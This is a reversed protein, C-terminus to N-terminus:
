EDEDAELDLVPSRNATRRLELQYEGMKTAAEELLTYPYFIENFAARVDQEEVRKADRQESKRIAEEWVVRITNDIQNKLYDASDGGVQKEEPTYTRLLRQLSTPKVPDPTDESDESM